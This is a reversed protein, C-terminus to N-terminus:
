RLTCRFNFKGIENSDVSWSLKFSGGQLKQKNNWIECYTDLAKEDLARFGLDHPLYGEHPVVQFQANENIQLKKTSITAHSEKISFIKNAENLFESFSNRLQLLSVVDDETKLSFSESIVNNNKNNQAKLWNLTEKLASREIARNEREEILDKIAKLLKKEDIEIGSTAKVSACYRKATHEEWADEINHGYDMMFKIARSRYWQDSLEPGQDTKTSDGLRKAGNIDFPEKSIKPTPLGSSESLKKQNYITRLQDDGPHNKWMEKVLLSPLRNAVASRVISNKDNYLKSLFKNPVIRAALKRVEPNNHELLRVFISTKFLRQTSIGSKELIDIKQNAAEAIQEIKGDTSITAGLVRVVESKFLDFVRQEEITSKVVQQLKDLKLRM